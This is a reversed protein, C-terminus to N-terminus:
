EGTSRKLANITEQLIMTLLTQTSVTELFDGAFYIINIESIYQHEAGSLLSRDCVEITPLESFDGMEFHRILWQLDRVDICSDLQSSLIEPRLEQSLAYIKILYQARFVADKLKALAEPSCLHDSM